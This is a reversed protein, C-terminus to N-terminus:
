QHDSQFRALQAPMHCGRLKTHVLVISTREKAFPMLNQRLALAFKQM